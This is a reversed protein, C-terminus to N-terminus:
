QTKPHQHPGIVHPPPPPPPTIPHLLVTVTQLHLSYDCFPITALSRKSSDVTSSALVQVRM